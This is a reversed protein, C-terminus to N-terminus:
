SLATLAFHFSWLGSFASNCLNLRFRITGVAQLYNDTFKQYRSEVKIHEPTANIKQVQESKAANRQSLLSFGTLLKSVLIKV